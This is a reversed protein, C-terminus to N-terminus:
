GFKGNRGYLGYVRPEDWFAGISGVGLPKYPARSAELFITGVRVSNECSVTPPLLVRDRRQGSIRSSKLRREQGDCGEL